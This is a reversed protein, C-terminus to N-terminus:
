FTIEKWVKGDWEWTDNVDNPWRLRGGFLVTRDRESDYDMYGMMRASPGSQALLKWREGDWGWTDSEIKSKSSGGFILMMGRKSDYAYGMAMRAAPGETAVQTWNKGDYEWTDGFFTEPSAGMGGYLITRKRKKDYVMAFAQRGAPGAIDLKKWSARDWEWTDSNVQGREKSGGFAIFRDRDSDYVFGPEVAITAVNDGLKELKSGNFRNLDGKNGGEGMGGFSVLNQNKDDYAIRFSSREFGPAHEMKWKLGDYTWFEDYTRFSNGGDLPTSGGILIIKKKSQDYIVAHHGRKGPIIPDIRDPDVHVSTLFSAFSVIGALSSKFYFSSKM